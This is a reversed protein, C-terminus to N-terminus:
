SLALYFWNAVYFLPETRAAATVLYILLFYWVVCAFTAYWEPEPMNMAARIGLLYGTGAISHLLQLGCWSGRRSNGAIRARSTAARCLLVYGLVHRRLRLDGGSTHLPRWRGLQDPFISISRPFLSNSRSFLSSSDATGWFLAALSAFKIPGYQLQTQRRHRAADARDAARSRMNIAVVALVSRAFVVGHSLGYGRTYARTAIFPPASRSCCLIPSLSIKALPGDNSYSSKAGSTCDEPNKRDCIGLHPFVNCFWRDQSVDEPNKPLITRHV